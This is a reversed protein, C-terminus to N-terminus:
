VRCTLIRHSSFGKYEYMYQKSESRFPGELFM